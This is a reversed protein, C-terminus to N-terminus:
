NHAIHRDRPRSSTIQLQIGDYLLALGDEIKDQSILALGGCFKSDTEESLKKLRDRENLDEWRETYYLLKKQRLLYEELKTHYRMDSHSIGMRIEKQYFHELAEMIRARSVDLSILTAWGHEEAEAEERTMFAAEISFVDCSQIYPLLKRANQEAEAKIRGGHFTKLIVVELM